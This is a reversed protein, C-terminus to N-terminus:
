SASAESVSGGLRGQEVNKKIGPSQLLQDKWYRVREEGKQDEM